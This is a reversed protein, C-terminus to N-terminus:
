HYRERSLELAALDHERRMTEATVAMLVSSAQRYGRQKERKYARRKEESEKRRRKKEQEYGPLTKIYASVSQRSRGVLLATEEMGLGDLWLRAAQEKWSEMETWARGPMTRGSCCWAGKAIANVVAKVGNFPGSKRKLRGIGM